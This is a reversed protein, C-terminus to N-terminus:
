PLFIGVLELIPGYLAGYAKYARLSSGITPYIPSNVERVIIHDMRHDYLNFTSIIDAYGM